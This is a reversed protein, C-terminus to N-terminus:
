LVSHVQVATEVTVGARRRLREGRGLLLPIVLAKQSFLGVPAFNAAAEAAAPDLRLLAAVVLVVLVSPQM